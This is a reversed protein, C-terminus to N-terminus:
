IERSKDTKIKELNDRNKIIKLNNIHKKVQDISTKSNIELVENLWRPINKECVIINGNEIYAVKRFVNTNDFISINDCVPILKKLSELSKGYRREVDKDPIGHGGKQVRMKIREKALDYNDIGVYYMQIIFGNNKARNIYDFTSKGCLTTEQNFSKGNDICDNILNIAIRAAEIQDRLSNWNGSNERVIDDANIRIGLDNKNVINNRYLTSKGAGNVGAFITYIKEKEM